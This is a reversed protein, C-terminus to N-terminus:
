LLLLWCRGLPPLARGCPAQGLVCASRAAGAAATGRQQQRQQTGGGEWRGGRPAEAEAGRVPAHEHAEPARQLAGHLAGAVRAPRPPTPGMCAFPAAHCPVAPWSCRQRSGAAVVGAAAAAKWLRAPQLVAAARRSAGCWGQPGEAALQECGHLVEHHGAQSGSLAAARARARLRLVSGRRGGGGEGRVSAEAEVHGRVWWWGAGGGDGLGCVGGAAAQVEAAVRGQAGAAPRPVRQQQGPSAAHQQVAVVVTGVLLAAAGAPAGGRPWCGRARAPAGHGGLGFVARLLAHLVVRAVQLDTRARAREGASPRQVAAARVM